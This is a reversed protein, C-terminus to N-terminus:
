SFQVCKNVTIPICRRGSAPLQSVLEDVLKQQREDDAFAAPSNTMLLHLYWKYKDSVADYDGTVSNQALLTFQKCSSVDASSFFDQFFPPFNGLIGFNRGSFWVKPAVFEGCFKRMALINWLFAITLVAQCLKFNVFMRM